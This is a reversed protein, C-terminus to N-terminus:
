LGKAANSRAESEEDLKAFYDQLAPPLRGSVAPWGGCAKPAEEDPDKQNNLPGLFATDSIKQAKALASGAASLDAMNLVEGEQSLKREVASQLRLSSRFYAARSRAHQNALTRVLRQNEERLTLKAFTEKQEVWGEQQSRRHITVLPLGVAQAVADLSPQKVENRDAEAPIIAQIYWRRAMDIRARTKAHSAQGRPKKKTASHNPTM